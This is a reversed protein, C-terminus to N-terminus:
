VLSEDPAQTKQKYREIAFSVSVITGTLIVGSMLVLYAYWMQFPFFQSIENPLGDTSMYVAGIVLCVLFVIKAVEARKSLGCSSAIVLGLVTISSGNLAFYRPSSWDWGDQRFTVTAVLSALASSSWFVLAVLLNLDKCLGSSRRNASSIYVLASLVLGLVLCGLRFTVSPFEYNENEWRDRFGFIWSSVHFSFGLIAREVNELLGTSKFEAAYEPNRFYESLPNGALVGVPTWVVRGIAISGILIFLQISRYNSFLNRTASVVILGVLVVLFQRTETFVVGYVIIAFFQWRTLAFRSSRRILKLYLFLCVPITFRDLAVMVQTSEIFHHRTHYSNFFLIVLPYAVVPQIELERAIANLTTVCFLLAVLGPLAGFIFLSVRADDSASIQSFILRPVVLLHGPAPQFLYQVFNASGPELSRALERFGQDDGSFEFDQDLLIRQQVLASPVFVLLAFVYEVLVLLRSYLFRSNVARDPSWRQYLGTVKSSV